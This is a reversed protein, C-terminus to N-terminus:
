PSDLKSPQINGEKERRYNVKARNSLFERPYDNRLLIAMELPWRSKSIGIIGRKIVTHEMFNADWTQTGLDWTKFFSGSQHKEHGFGVSYSQYQFWVGLTEPCEVAHIVRSAGVVEQNQLRTHGQDRGNQKDLWSRDLPQFNHSSSPRM